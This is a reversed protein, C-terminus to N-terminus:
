DADINLDNNKLYDSLTKCKACKEYNELSEFFDQAKKL